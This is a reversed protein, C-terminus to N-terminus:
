SINMTKSIKVIFQPSIESTIQLFPPFINIIKISFCKFSVFKM